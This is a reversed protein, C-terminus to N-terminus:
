HLLFKGAKTPNNPSLLLAYNKAISSVKYNVQKTFSLSINFVSSLKICIPYKRACVLKYDKELLSKLSGPEMKHLVDEGSQQQNIKTHLFSFELFALVNKM